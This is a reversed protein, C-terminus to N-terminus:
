KIDDWVYVRCKLESCLSELKKKRFITTTVWVLIFQPNFTSLQQYRKIKERNKSMSQTCDIEVFRHLKNSIYAADAVLSIKSDPITIKVENKWSSPRGLQIFLDNRILYHHIMATKKRIKEAQVKERGASNLYYVKKRDETFFSLYKTMNGLIRQANRTKGLNHMRQIQERSLYDCKRLSLLIAEERKEKELNV